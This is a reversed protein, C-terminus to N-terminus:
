LDVNPPVCATPQEFEMEFFYQWKIKFLSMTPLSSPTEM